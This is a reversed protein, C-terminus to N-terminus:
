RTAWWPMAGASKAVPMPEGTVMADEVESRGDLVVSDTPIREGPRVVLIDGVVLSAAAVEVEAGGREVRATAPAMEMLRRIAASAQGRSRAELWRGVLVLAVIVSAAEFYVFRQGEPILGPTLLVFMSFLWTTGTGLAVLSNMEPAGRLLAPWGVRHFVRGPGLIAATAFGAQIWWSATMGISSEILGHLGPVLHGGMELLLSPVALLAAIIAGRRLAHEEGHHAHPDDGVTAHGHRDPVPQADYGARAVAAQLASLDAHGRHEMTAQSTALNVSAATVGPVGALAREVRGVCSACTMGQVALRTRVEAEEVPRTLAEAEPPM